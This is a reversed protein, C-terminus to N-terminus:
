RVVALSASPAETLGLFSMSNENFLHFSWRVGEGYTGYGAWFVVSTLSSGIVFPSVFGISISSDDNFGGPSFLRINLVTKCGVGADRCASIHRKAM